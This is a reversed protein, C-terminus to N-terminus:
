SKPVLDRSSVRLVKVKLLELPILVSTAKSFKVLQFKRNLSPGPGNLKRKFMVVMLKFKWLRPRTSDKSSRAFKLPQLCVSL